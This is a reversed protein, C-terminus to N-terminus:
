YFSYHVVLYMLFIFGFSSTINWYHKQKKEQFVMFDHNILDRDYLGKGISSLFLAKEKPEIRKIAM